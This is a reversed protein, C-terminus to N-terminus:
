ILSKRYKAYGWLMEIPNLECHFKPLFLLGPSSLKKAYLQRSMNTWSADESPYYASGSDSDHQPSTFTNKANKRQLQAKAAKQTPHPM